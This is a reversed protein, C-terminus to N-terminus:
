RGADRPKTGVRTIAESMLSLRSEYEVEFIIQSDGSIREFTFRELRHIVEFFLGVDPDVGIRSGFCYRGPGYSPAM